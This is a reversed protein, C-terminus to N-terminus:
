KNRGYAAVKADRDELFEVVIDHLISFNASLALSTNPHILKVVEYMAMRVYERFVDDRQIESEKSALWDTIGGFVRQNADPYVKKLREIVLGKVYSNDVSLQLSGSLNVQSRGKTSIGKM